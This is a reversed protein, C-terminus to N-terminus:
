HRVYFLGDSNSMQDHAFGSNSSHRNYAYYNGNNHHDGFGRSGSNGGFNITSSNAYTPSCLDWGSGDAQGASSFNGVNYGFLYAYSSSRNNAFAWWTCNSNTGAYVSDNMIENIFSDSYSQCSGSPNIPSGDSVGSANGSHHCTSNSKARTVLIWAGDYDSNNIYVQRTTGNIKVYHNGSSAGAIKSGSASSYPDSSSGDGEVGVDGTGSSINTWANSGSTADTCVYCKGNAKNVWITGTGGAPNTSVTPDSSSTQLNNATLNGTITTTGDQNLRLKTQGSENAWEMQNTGSSGKSYITWRQTAAESFRLGIDRDTDADFEVWASGAQNSEFLAMAGVADAVVHLKQAPSTTGIGLKGSSDLTMNDSANTRFIMKDGNNMYKLAGANEDASDGFNIYMTGTPAGLVAIGNSWTDGTNMLILSTQTDISSPLANDRAGRLVYVSNANSGTATTDVHLLGSPSATGIGVKGSPDITLHEGSSINGSSNRAIKFKNASNDFGMAIPNSTAGQGMQIYNDASLNSSSNLILSPDTNSTVNNQVTLTNTMTGGAKPLAAGATTNLTQIDVGDVTGSVTINGTVTTGTTTIELKKNGGQSFGINDSGSMYMGSAATAFRYAPLAETGDIANIRGTMTGGSKPLAANATTTTSTLVGDRTAIDV